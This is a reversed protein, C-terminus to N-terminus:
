APEPEAPTEPEPPAETCELNEQAWEYYWERAEEYHVVREVSYAQLVEREETRALLITRDGMVAVDIQSAMGPVPDHSIERWSLGAATQVPANLFEDDEALPTLENNLLTM